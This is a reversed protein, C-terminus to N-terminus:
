RPANLFAILDEIEEPALGLKIMGTGPKVAQPDDLWRRLFAADRKYSSLNPAFNRDLTNGVVASHVHCTVCGKNVFLAAGRQGATSTPVATPASSLEPACAGLLLAALLLILGKGKLAAQQDSREALSVSLQNAYYQARKM